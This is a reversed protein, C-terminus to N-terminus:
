SSLEPFLLTLTSPLSVTYLLGGHVSLASVLGSNQSQAQFTKRTSPTLDLNRGEVCLVSAANELVCAIPAKQFNFM